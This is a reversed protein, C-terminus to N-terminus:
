RFSSEVWDGASGNRLDLKLVKPLTAVFADHRIESGLFGCVVRTTAGGGGHVLRALGGDPPPAILDNARIPAVDLASGLLHPDNRPLLVAEGAEVEVTSEGEVRVLARG